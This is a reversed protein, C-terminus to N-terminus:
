VNRPKIFTIIPKIQQYIEDGCFKSIDELMLIKAFIEGRTMTAM